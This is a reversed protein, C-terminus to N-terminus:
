YDTEVGFRRIEIRIERAQTQDLERSGVIDEDDVKIPKSISIHLAAICESRQSLEEARRAWDLNRVVCLEVRFKDLVIEADVRDAQEIRQQRALQDGGTVNFFPM